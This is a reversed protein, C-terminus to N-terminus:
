RRDALSETEPYCGCGGNASQGRSSCCGAASCGICRAGSKKAKVIYRVAAGIMLLIIAAIIYNAM